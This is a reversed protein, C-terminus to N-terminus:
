QQPAPLQDAIWRMALAARHRAIIQVLACSSAKGTNGDSCGSSSIRRM